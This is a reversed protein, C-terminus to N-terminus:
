MCEGFCNRERTKCISAGGELEVCDVWELVCKDECELDDPNLIPKDEM